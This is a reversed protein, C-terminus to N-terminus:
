VWPNTNSRPRRTAQWSDDEFEDYDDLYHPGPLSLRHPRPPKVQQLSDMSARRRLEFIHNPLHKPTTDLDDLKDGVTLNLIDEKASSAFRRLRYKSSSALAKLKGLVSWKPM